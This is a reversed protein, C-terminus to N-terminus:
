TRNRGVHVNRARFYTPATPGPSGAAGEMQLDIILWMPRDVFNAGRHAAVWTGDLYYHIDVDTPGAKTIRARYGHWGGPNRVDVLTTATRGSADRYTTFRNRTDGRFELIDSEPPRSAIGSLWCAPWAGMTAPARFEGRIEWDPFRDSVLIPQKTHIAGSRYHIASYPRHLSTRETSPTRTAKLALVGDPELFVHERDAVTSTRAAGNHDSGWPYGYNWAAELSQYGAFTGDLVTEWVPPPKAAGGAMRAVAATLPRRRAHIM